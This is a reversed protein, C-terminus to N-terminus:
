SLHVNRHSCRDRVCVVAGSKKRWLVLRTEMIEVSRLVGKKFDESLGAVYWYESLKGCRERMPLKNESLNVVPLNM